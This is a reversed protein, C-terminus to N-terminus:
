DIQVISPDRQGSAVSTNALGFGTHRPSIALLNAVTRIGIEFCKKTCYNSMM